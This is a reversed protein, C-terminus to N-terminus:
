SSLDGDLDDWADVGDVDQVNTSAVSLGSFRM